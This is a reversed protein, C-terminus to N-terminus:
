KLQGTIDIYPYDGIETGIVYRALSFWEGCEDLIIADGSATLPKSKLVTDVQGDLIVQLEYGTNGALTRIRERLRGSNSVQKDLYIVAGSVGLRDLASLLAKIALDTEPILRYSGHLGALDRVTGDMCYFLMSRLFAIELSIIVNFGDIYVTRGSIGTVERSRRSLIKDEPSVVRALALRQRETFQYHDGIFRVASLVPYGRGTLYCLESAAKRLTPLAEEGFDQTDSPVFGRRPQQTM